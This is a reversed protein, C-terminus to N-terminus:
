VDTAEPRVATNIGVTSPNLFGTTESFAFARDSDASQSLQAVPVGFLSCAREVLSGGLVTTRGEFVQSLRYESAGQTLTLVEVGRIRLSAVQEAGVAEPDIDIVWPLEGPVNEPVYLPLRDARNMRVRLVGIALKAFLSSQHQLLLHLVPSSPPVLPDNTSRELYSSALLGLYLCGATNHPFDPLLSVLDVAAERAGGDSVAFDHLERAIVVLALHDFPSLRERSFMEILNRGQQYAARCETVFKAAESKAAQRSEYLARSLTVSTFAIRESDPFLANPAAALSVRRAEQQELRTDVAAARMQRATAAQPQEPVIAVDVFLKTHDPAVTKLIGGLYTSDLLVLESVGSITLAEHELMPHPRPVAKQSVPERTATWPVDGQSLLSSSLHWDNKRDNSVIVICKSAVLSAHQLVEKWFMLDGWRNSGGGLQVEAASNAPNAQREAKGRDQFGPPIRGDFRGEALADITAMHQFVDVKCPVCENVFAIVELSNKALVHKRSGAIRAVKDLETLTERLRTRIEGVDDDEPRSPGDLYPRLDAYTRRVLGSLERTKRDLEGSLTAAVYHRFYEHAAWTPVHVRGVCEKRLWDALEKRSAASIKTLWMLFSTDLYLTTSGETILTSVRTVFEEYTELQTPLLM